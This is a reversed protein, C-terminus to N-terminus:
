ASPEDAQPIIILDGPIAMAMALHERRRRAAPNLIIAAIIVLSDLVVVLTYTVSAIIDFQGKFVLSLDSFIGGAMDVTMFLVSIGIVERHKYIEYYQPLLAISLLFSSMIGFFKVAKHNGADYSPKIAFVAGMELGGLVAAVAVVSVISVTRSRRNGYYQCQGWSILSLMGFLQPQIILPINLNQVIAYVGLFGAAIGWLLRCM